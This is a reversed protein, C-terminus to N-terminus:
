CRRAWCTWWRKRRIEKAELRVLDVEDHLHSLWREVGPWDFREGGLLVHKSSVAFVGVQKAFDAPFVAARELFSRFASKLEGAARVADVQDDLGSDVLDAQTILFALKPVGAPDLVHPMEEAVQSLLLKTADTNVADYKVVVLMCHCLRTVM